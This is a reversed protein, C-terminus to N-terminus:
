ALPVLQKVHDSLSAMTVTGTRPDLAGGCLGTLLADVVPDGEAPADVAIVHQARYTGLAGLWGGASGEGRASMVVVLQEAKAALLRERIWALSLTADEPYERVQAGTVLAPAAGVQVITGLLVVIASRVPEVALEDLHQKLTARDAAYREGTAATLRRIQWASGTALLAEGIQALTHMAPGDSAPAGAVGFGAVLLAAGEPRRLVM